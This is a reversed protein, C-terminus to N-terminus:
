PLITLLLGAVAVRSRKSVLNPYERTRAFIGTRRMHSTLSSQERREAVVFGIRFSAASFFRAILTRGNALVYKALMTHASHM